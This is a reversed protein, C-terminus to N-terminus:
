HVLAQRLTLLVDLRPAGVAREIQGACWGIDAAISAGHRDKCKRVIKRLTQKEIMFHFMRWAEPRERETKRMAHVVDDAVVLAEARLRRKAANEANSKENAERLEAIRGGVIEMSAMKGYMEDALSMWFAMDRVFLTDMRVQAYRPGGAGSMLMWALRCCTAIEQASLEM